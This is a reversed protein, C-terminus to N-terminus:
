IASDIPPVLFRPIITHNAWLSNSFILFFAIFVVLKFNEGWMQWLFGMFIALEPGFTSALFERIYLLASL